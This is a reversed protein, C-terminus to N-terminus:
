QQVVELAQLDSLTDVDPNHGTVDVLTERPRPLVSGLGADGQLERILPWVSSAVLVPHGPVDATAEYRPRLIAEGGAYWASIIAAVVELRVLPQDGLMILAAEAGGAEELAALGLQLSYSLGRDPASNLVPELRLQRVLGLSAEDDEPIVVHGGGILGRERAAAVVALPYALLPQDLYRAQLKRGGFRSGRGAALVLAHLSLHKADAKPKGAQQPEHLTV